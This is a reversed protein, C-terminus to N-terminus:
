EPLLANMLSFSENCDEGICEQKEENDDDDDDADSEDEDSEKKDEGEGVVYEEEEEGEEGEEEYPMEEAEDDFSSGDLDSIMDDEGYAGEDEGGGGMEPGTAMVIGIGDMQPDISNEVGGGYSAPEGPMDPHGLPMPSGGEIDPATQEMGHQQIAYGSKKYELYHKVDGMSQACKSIKDEVWDEIDVQGENNLCTLVEGAYEHIKALNQMLMEIGDGGECGCDGCQENLLKLFETNNMSKHFHNMGMFLLRLIFFAAEAAM